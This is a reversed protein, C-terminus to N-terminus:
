RDGSTDHTEELIECSIIDIGWKLTSKVMCFAEEKSDYETVDPKRHSDHGYVTKVRTKM